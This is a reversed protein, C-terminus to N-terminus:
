RKPLMSETVRASTATETPSESTTSDMMATLYLWIREMDKSSSNARVEPMLVPRILERRATSVATVTTSVIFSTPMMSVDARRMMGATVAKWAALLKLPVMTTAPVTATSETQIPMKRENSSLTGVPAVM